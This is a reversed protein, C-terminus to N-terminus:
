VGPRPSVGFSARAPQTLSALMRVLEAVPPSAAPTTRIRHTRRDLTLTVRYEAVADDRVSRPADPESLLHRAVLFDYLAEFQAPTLRGLRPPTRDPAGPGAAAHFSRDPELLYRATREAPDSADPDGEVIVELAFAAPLVAAGIPSSASCSTIAVVLALGLLTPLAAHAIGARRSARRPPRPPIL